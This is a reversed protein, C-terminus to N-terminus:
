VNRVTLDHSVLLSDRFREVDQRDAPLEERIQAEALENPVGDRKALLRLRNRIKVVELILRQGLGDPGKAQLETRRDAHAFRGDLLSDLLGLLGSALERLTLLDM